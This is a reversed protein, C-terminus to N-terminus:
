SSSKPSMVCAINPGALPKGLQCALLWVPKGQCIAGAAVFRKSGHRVGGVGVVMEGWAGRLHSLRIV